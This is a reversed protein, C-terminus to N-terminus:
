EPRLIDAFGLEDAWDAIVRSLDIRQNLCGAHGAGQVLHVKCRTPGVLAQLRRAEVDSDLLADATGAIALVPVEISALRPEVWACGQELHGLRASMFDRPPLDALQGTLEDLAAIYFEALAPDSEKLKELQREVVVDKIAATVFGIDFTKLGLLAFCAAPFLFDPLTDACLLRADAQLAPRVSYATASNVLLVGTILSPERLAVAAAVVAGFSEGMILTAACQGAEQEERLHQSVASVTADFSECAPTARADLVRISYGQEALAPWQAFPSGHSGDLGPIYYIRPTQETAMCRAPPFNYKPLPDFWKLAAAIQTSLGLVLLQARPPSFLVM